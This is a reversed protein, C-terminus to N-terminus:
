VGNSLINSSSSFHSKWIQVISNSIEKIQFKAERSNNKSLLIQQTIFIYMNLKNITSLNQYLTDPIYLTKSM